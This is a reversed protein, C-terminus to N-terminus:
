KNKNIKNTRDGGVRSRIIILIMNWIFSKEQNAGEIWPVTIDDHIELGRSKLRLQFFISSAANPMLQLRIMNDYIGEITNSKIGYEASTYGEPFSLFNQIVRVTASIATVHRTITGCLPDKMCAIELWGYKFDTNNYYSLTVCALDELALHM